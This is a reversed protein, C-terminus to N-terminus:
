CRAPHCNMSARWQIAVPMLLALAGVNNMFSSMVAGLVILAAISLTPGGSKPLIYESLANVAGTIQLGFSLVLVCAVTIVAPHGFGAFAADAPILGLFVCALLSFLAVTDHRWRGWLFLVITMLLVAIIEIQNFAM